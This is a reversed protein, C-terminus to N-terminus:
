RKVVPRVVVEDIMAEDSADVALRVARAVSEPRLHEGAVYERGKESQLQVQMDTDVRGPHVSCVRVVGREEERLADTLARLAFKSAAYLGGGPGAHFGAGSNIAVVQGHAERLRPLLLRTLDAVAIVNMEFIRRWDCRGMAGVEGSMAIGASHVLVDLRRVHDTARATAAADTLDCLFGEASVGSAGLEGVVADVAEVSRGGVLIHHTRGLEQAIARGIGRTAGTVLAIQQDSM